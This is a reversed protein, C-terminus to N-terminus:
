CLSPQTPNLAAPPPKPQWAGETGEAHEMPVWCHWPPDTSGMPLSLSSGHLMVQPDWQLFGQAQPLAFNMCLSPKNLGGESQLPPSQGLNADKAM